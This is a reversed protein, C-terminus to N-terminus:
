SRMSRLKIIRFRRGHKGVRTQVYFIPGPSDLKIAIAAILIFPASILLGVLAGAIDMGRKLLRREEVPM